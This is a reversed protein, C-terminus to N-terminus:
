ALATFDNSDVYVRQGRFCVAGGDRQLAVHLVHAMCSM